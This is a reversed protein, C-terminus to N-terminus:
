PLADQNLLYEREKDLQTWVQGVTMGSERALRVLLTGKPRYTHPQPGKHTQRTRRLLARKSRTGLQPYFILEMTYNITCGVFGLTTRISLLSLTKDLIAKLFSLNQLGRPSRLIKWRHVDESRVSALM